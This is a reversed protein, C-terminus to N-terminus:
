YMTTYRYPHTTDGAACAASRVSSRAQAMGGETWVSPAWEGGQSIHMPPTTFLVHHFMTGFVAAFVCTRLRTQHGEDTPM